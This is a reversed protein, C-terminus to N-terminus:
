ARPLAGAHHSGHGTYYEFPLEPNLGGQMLVTTCGMEAAASWRRTMM